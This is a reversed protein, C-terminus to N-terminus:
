TGRHPAQSSRYRLTHTSPVGAPFERAATDGRSLSLRSSLHPQQARPGKPCSRLLGGGMAVQDCSRHLERPHGSPVGAPLVCFRPIVLCFIHLFRRQVATFLGHFLTSDNVNASAPTPLYPSVWAVRDHDMRQRSCCGVGCGSLVASKARLSRRHSPNAPAEANTRPVAWLLRAPSIDMGPTSRFTSFSTSEFMGPYALIRTRSTMKRGPEEVSM